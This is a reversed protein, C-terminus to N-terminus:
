DANLSMEEQLVIMRKPSMCVNLHNLRIIDHYSAGSHFLITSM